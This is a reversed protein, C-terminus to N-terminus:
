IGAFIGEEHIRRIYPELTRETHVAPREEVMHKFLSANYSSGTCAESLVTVAPEAQGGEVVLFVCNLSHLAESLQKFLTSGSPLLIVAPTNGATM